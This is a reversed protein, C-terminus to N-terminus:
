FNSILLNKHGHLLRFYGHWTNYGSGKSQSSQNHGTNKSNYIVSCHMYKKMEATKKSLIRPIQIIVSFLMSTRLGRLVQECHKLAIHIIM